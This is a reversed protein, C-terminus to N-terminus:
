FEPELSREFNGQKIYIHLKMSGPDFSCFSYAKQHLGLNKLTKDRFDKFNFFELEPDLSRMFIGQNIHKHLKMQALM